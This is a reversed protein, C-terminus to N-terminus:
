GAGADAARLRDRIARALATERLVAVAPVRRRALVPSAAELGAWAQGFHACKWLSALIRPSLAFRRACDVTPDGAAFASRAYRRLRARRIAQRVPELRSDLFLDPASLRRRITDAMGGPARGEIRGSVSVWVESAHRIRCDHGRLAAVFARDEGYAVPRLGGVRRWAAASVAISAGAEDTHRPWPDAPDPDLLSTIEDLLTAYACERADDQHLADPILRAEVPDIVARGLVADAGRVLAALTQALWDSPVIGDADTTLVVGTPGAVAGARRMALARATGAHARSLPLDVCCLDITLPLSPALAQVIAASADTCNNLLLAVAPAPAGRQGALAILCSAIREAEDRVPIAVAIPTDCRHASIRTWSPM